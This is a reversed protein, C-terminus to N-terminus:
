VPQALTSALCNVNKQWRISCSTVVTDMLLEEAGVRKPKM